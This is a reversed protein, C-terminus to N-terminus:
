LIVKHDTHVPQMRHILSTHVLNQDIGYDTYKDKDVGKLALLHVRNGFTLISLLTGLCACNTDETRNTTCIKHM